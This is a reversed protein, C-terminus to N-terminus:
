KMIGEHAKFTLWALPAALAVVAMIRLPHFARDSGVVVALAVWHSTCYTCQLMGGLWALPGKRPVNAFVGGLPNLRRPRLTRTLLWERLGKFVKARTLTLTISATALAMLLLDTVGLVRL